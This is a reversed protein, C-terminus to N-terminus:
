WVVDYGVGCFWDAVCWDVWVYDVISFGVVIFERGVFDFMFGLLLCDLFEVICSVVIAM